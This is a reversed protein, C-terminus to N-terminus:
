KGVFFARLSFYSSALGCGGIIVIFCVIGIRGKRTESYGAKLAIVGPYIFVMISGCFAGAFAVFDTIVSFRSVILASFALSVFTVLINLALRQSLGFIQFFNVKFSHGNVACGTIFSLLLLCRTIFMVIDRDGIVRRFIFLDTEKAHQKGLSLYSASGIIAGLMSLIFFTRSFIKRLRRKNPNQVTNIVSFFNNIINFAFILCGFTQFLGVLTISVTNFVNENRSKLDKYYLPTQFLCILAALVIIAFSYLSLHRLANVSKQVVLFFLLAALVFPFVSNFKEFTRNEEDVKIVSWIYDEFNIYFMKSISAVTAIVVLLVYMIFLADYLICLPRSLLSRNLDGLSRCTPFKLYANILFDASFYFAVSMIAILILAFVIGVSNFLHHLTFIGTGLATILMIFIAGRLSDPHMKKFARHYWKSKTRNENETDLFIKEELDSNM